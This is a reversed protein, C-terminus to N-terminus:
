ATVFPVLAYLEVVVELDAGATSSHSRGVRVGPAALNIVRGVSDVELDVGATVAAGSMVPLMVHAGRIVQGKGAIGVDWGVVGGVEGGAAPVGATQINGGTAAADLALPSSQFTTLPGCFRKGQVAAAFHVTLKQCYAGEYIPICENAPM